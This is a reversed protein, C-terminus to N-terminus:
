IYGLAGAKLAAFLEEDQSFVTLMVVNAPPHVARLRPLTQVGTLGPMQLDLLVVDPYLLGAQEVAALGDGAEGVVRIDPQEELVQRIGRRVVPHDDVLLVRIPQAESSADVSGSPLRYGAQIPRLGLVPLGGPHSS